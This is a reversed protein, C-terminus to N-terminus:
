IDHVLARVGNGVDLEGDLARAFLLGVRDVDGMLLEGNGGGGRVAQEVAALGGVLQQSGPGGRRVDGVARPADRREVDIVGRAEGVATDHEVRGAREEGFVLDLLGNVDEGLVFVAIQVQMQDVVLTPADLDGVVTALGAVRDIVGLQALDAALGGHARGVLLLLGADGAEVSLGVHALDGRVCALVVDFDHGLDVHGAVRLAHQVADGLEVSRTGRMVAGLVGLAVRDLVGRVVNHRRVLGRTGNAIGIEIGVAVVSPREELVHHLLHSLEGIGFVEMKAAVLGVLEVGIVWPLYLGEQGLGGGHDAVHPELGDAPILPCDAVHLGAVADLVPVAAHAVGDGLDLVLTGLAQVRTCGM